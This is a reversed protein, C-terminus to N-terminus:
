ARFVLLPIRTHYLIKLTLSPNILKSLINRKHKTVSMLDINKSVIYEDLAKIINKSFILDSEVNAKGYVKNFYEKLGDMKIRDWPNEHEGIHLNYVNLDFKQIITMLKGIASFDSEDFATTYLINKIKDIGNFEMEEPIILVPVVSKEVIRSAIKGMPEFSRVETGSVGMIILGAKEAESTYLTIIEPTGNILHTTIPINELGKTKAYTNIKKLFSALNKEATERIGNVTPTILIEPNEYTVPTPDPIAYVHILKIRAKFKVALELAFYCANLSAPSFDTPIIFLDPFATDEKM